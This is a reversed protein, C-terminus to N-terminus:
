EEKHWHGDSTPRGCVECVCPSQRDTRHRGGCRLCGETEVLQPIAWEAAAEASDFTVLAFNEREYGERPSYEHVIYDVLDGEADKKMQVAFFPALLRAHARCDACMALHRAYGAKLPEGMEGDAHMALYGDRRHAPLYCDGREGPLWWFFDPDYHRAEEGAGLARLKEVMEPELLVVDDAEELLDDMRGVVRWNQPEEDESYEKVLRLALEADDRQRYFSSLSAEDRSDLFSRALKPLELREVFEGCAGLVNEFDRRVEIEVERLQPLYEELCGARRIRAIRVVVAYADKAAGRQLFRRLSDEAREIKCQPHQCGSSHMDWTSSPKGDTGTTYTQGEHPGWGNIYEHCMWSYDANGM